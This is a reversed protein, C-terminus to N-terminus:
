VNRHLRPDREVKSFTLATELRLAIVIDDGITTVVHVHVDVAGHLGEASCRLPAPPSRTGARYQEFLSFHPVVRNVAEVTNGRM